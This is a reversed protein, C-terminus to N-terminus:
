VSDKGWHFFFWFIMECMKTKSNRSVPNYYGTIFSGRDYKKHRTGVMSLHCANKSKQYFNRDILVFTFPIISSYCFNCISLLNKSGQASLTFIGCSFYAQIHTCRHM